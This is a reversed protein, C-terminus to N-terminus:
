VPVCLSFVHLGHTTRSKRAIARDCWFDCYFSPLWLEARVQAGNVFDGFQAEWMVLMNPNELSYGAEFGLVGFESLISNRVTFEAQMDPTRDKTTPMAPSTFKALHNLPNYKKGNNQDVLVAHRHSFTGREVDQGSLRVHNGELLLTGIALAEATGWDLGAGSTISELRAAFIRQLQKHVAFDKPITSMKIGIERLKEKDYGTQKIRAHQRPSLFGKWRSTLWDFDPTKWSAAAEFESVLVKSINDRTAKLEDETAHGDAVLRQGYVTLTDPHPTIKGYMIPQTYAPQDLENHGYRRYCIMDIICDEGYKQRWEVAMEFATVVALPDDGNCHFIPINFAKGLDSAYMTSRGNEPNTTFGVQNNVIVHITGGVAFDPVRSMQITEYVVGQGAFAADGHLLVPMHKMKDEPRNGSFFQKARVKGICVPNVAELHSPNAVLGVHVRRGDPYSRDMSTGLHYKVDGASSWDHKLYEELSYHTGQFEKFIQPMPKRMVNALVNLRGRHPMGFVFSEIGLESGRDIMCKLGPIVSEGGELGFRKATNFKNALFKEFHDAFALREYIHLRKQKSFKMWKPHEVQDRIWNCRDETTMHMYEVGLTSCYAKKLNGMIQRLTVNPQQEGLIQLYGTNGGTSKGLMNLQRDLDEDKFGHHKYDLEPPPNKDRFAHMGLPDLDALEHGRAQYARILYSVGLSDSHVTPRDSANPAPAASSSGVSGVVSPLAAFAQAPNAGSDM